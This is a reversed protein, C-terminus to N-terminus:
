LVPSCLTPADAIEVDDGTSTRGLSSVPPHLVLLASEALVHAV